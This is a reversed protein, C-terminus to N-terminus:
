LPHRKLLEYYFHPVLHHELDVHEVLQQGQDVVLILLQFQETQHAHAFQEGDLLDRGDLLHDVGVKYRDENVEKM